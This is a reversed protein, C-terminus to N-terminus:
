GEAPPHAEAVLRSVLDSLDGVTRVCEADEDAIAVGFGEEVGMVLEVVDLSDAGLDEVIMQEPSIEEPKVGLQEALIAVVKQAADSEPAGDKWGTYAAPSKTEPCHSQAAPPAPPDALATQRFPSAAALMLALLAHIRKM